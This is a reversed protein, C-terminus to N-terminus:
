VEEEVLDLVFEVDHATATTSFRARAAAAGAAGTVVARHTAEKQKERAIPRTIRKKPYYSVLKRGCCLYVFEEVSKIQHCEM